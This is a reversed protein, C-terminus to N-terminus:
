PMDGPQTAEAPPQDPAGTFTGALRRLWLPTIFTTILVVLLITAYQWPLLLGSSLGIAAFILGVEGRPVMGVGVVLRDAQARVVAWGSAVKAAVALAALVLGICLAAVEHGRLGALDVQMGLTVFFFGVFVAALPQMDASLLRGQRTRALLLGAAFAGVIPHLGAQEALWAMLLAFALGLTVSLGKVRGRGVLLDFTPPVVLLGVLLAAVLFGVATGAVQALHALDVATGASAAAVSSTVVALVLLGGIDDLVAAGLIVRAEPSRLRRMDSLVRATIGVSTATLTAGVFVHLLNPPLSQSAVSWEPWIRALAASGAFGAAFSTTMGALAVLSSSAAVKRLGALESELGVGFLLLIAGLLALFAIIQGETTVPGGMDPLRLRNGLLTPALLIGVLLEGLVPPQRLREALEGGLKAAVLIVVVDFLVSADM